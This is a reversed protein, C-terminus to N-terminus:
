PVPYPCCRCPTSDPKLDLHVKCRPYCGLKRDFLKPYQLLIQGLISQKTGSLHKQQSAANHIDVQEYLSSHITQSKYGLQSPIEM